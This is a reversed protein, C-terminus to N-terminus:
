HKDPSVSALDEFGQVFESMIRLVRWHRETFSGDPSTQHIAM